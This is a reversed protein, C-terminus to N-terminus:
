FFVQIIFFCHVILHYHIMEVHDLFQFSYLLNTFIKKTTLAFDIIRRVMDSEHSYLNSSCHMKERKRKRFKLKEIEWKKKSSWLRIRYYKVYCRKVEQNVKTIKEFTKSLHLGESERRPVVYKSKSYNISVDWKKYEEYLKRIM